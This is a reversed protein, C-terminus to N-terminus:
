RKSQRPYAAFAGQVACAPKKRWVRLWHAFKGNTYPLQALTARFEGSKIKLGDAGATPWGKPPALRRPDTCSLFSPACDGMLSSFSKVGKRAQLAAGSPCRPSKPRPCPFGSQPVCGCRGIKKRHFWDYYQSQKEPM